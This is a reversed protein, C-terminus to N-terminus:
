LVPPWALLGVAAAAGYPVGEALLGRRAFGARGAVLLLGALVGGALATVLVFRALDAPPYWLAVATLMKVDGGGMGGRVFLAFSALFVLAAGPLHWVLALAGQGALLLAAPAAVAVALVLQNPIRRHRLDWAAGVGVGLPLIIAFPLSWPM